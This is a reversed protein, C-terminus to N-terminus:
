SYRLVVGDAILDLLRAQEDDLGAGALGAKAEEILAMARARVRELAGTAAIRDCLM